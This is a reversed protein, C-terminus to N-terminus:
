RCGPLCVHPSFNLCSKGRPRYILLVDKAYLVSSMDWSSLSGEFVSAGHFVSDMTIVSSVDWADVNANFTSISSCSAGLVYFSMLSSTDWSDIAGYTATATVSDSCWSGLAAQLDAYTATATLLKRPAATGVSRSLTALKTWSTSDRHAFGTRDRPGVKAVSLMSIVRLQRLEGAANQTRQALIKKVYALEDELERKKEQLRATEVVVGTTESAAALDLRREGSSSSLTCRM